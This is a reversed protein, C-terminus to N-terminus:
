KKGEDPSLFKAEYEKVAERWGLFMLSDMAKSIEGGNDLYKGGGWRRNKARLAEVQRTM